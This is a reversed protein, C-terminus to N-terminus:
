EVVWDSAILEFGMDMPSLPDPNSAILCEYLAEGEDKFEMDWQWVKRMRENALAKLVDPDHIDVTLILRGRM